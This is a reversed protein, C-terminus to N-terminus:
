ERLFEQGQLSIRNSPDQNRPGFGTERRTLTVSTEGARAKMSWDEESSLQAGEDHVERYAATPGGDPTYSGMSIKLGESLKQAALKAQM